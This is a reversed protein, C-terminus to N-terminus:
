VADITPPEVGLDSRLVNSYRAYQEAAASHAGSGRLLKLLSLELEENRPEIELARRALRIGRQYEGRDVDARIQTEVVHLYAVHLWERFDAAWDDYAFDLAFRGHYLESLRLAANPDQIRAYEAVLEACRASSSTILEPDLWLVDSDQHVYGASTEESYESEFVRRLFYVSQNLSNIAAAPDIEPWMAEMVEERTAAWKPRTMLFCLLALVKRRVDVGTLVAGSVEVSVRGLDRVTVVDALRRALARGLM